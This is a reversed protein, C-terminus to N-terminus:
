WKRETKLNAGQGRNVADLFPSGSSKKKPTIAAGRKADRMLKIASDTADSHVQRRIDSDLSEFAQRAFRLAMESKTELVQRIANAAMMCDLHEPGSLHDLSDALIGMAQLTANDNTRLAQAIGGPGFNEPDSGSV